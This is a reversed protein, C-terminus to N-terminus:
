SLGEAILDLYLDRAKQRENLWKSQGIAVENQLM